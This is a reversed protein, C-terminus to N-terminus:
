PNAPPDPWDALIERVAATLRGRDAPTLEHGAFKARDCEGLVAAIGDRTTATWVAARDGAALLEPTTWPEAALRFRRTLYGRIVDSLGDAFGSATHGGSALEAIRLSAWEGPTPEAAPRRRHVRVLVVAAVFAAVVAAVIVPPLVSVSSPPTPLQEVGTVTRADDPHARGLSTTVAVTLPDPTVAADAVRIPNFAVPVAEGPVFPSLRFAQEWRATGDGRASVVAPGVPEVKWVAASEGALLEKPLEVRLPAPGDATLTVTLADSLRLSTRDAALTVAPPM